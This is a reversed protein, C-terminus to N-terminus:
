KLFVKEGVVTLRATRGDVAGPDKTGPADRWEFIFQKLNLFGNEAYMGALVKGIGPLEGPSFDASLAVPEVRPMGAGGGANEAKWRALQGKLKALAEESQRLKEISRAAKDAGLTSTRLVLLGASAALSGCLLWAVSSKGFRTM